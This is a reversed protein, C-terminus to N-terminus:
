RWISSRIISAAGVACGAKRVHKQSPLDRQLSMAAGPTSSTAHATVRPQSTTKLVAEGMLSRTQPSPAIRIIGLTITHVGTGRSTGPVVVDTGRPVLTRSRARLRLHLRHAFPQYNFDGHPLAATITVAGFSGTARSMPAADLARPRPASAIGLPHCTPVLRSASIHWWGAACARHRPSLRVFGEGPTLETDGGLPGRPRQQKLAAVVVLVPSVWGLAVGTDGTDRGPSVPKARVRKGEGGLWVGREECVSLIHLHEPKILASPM